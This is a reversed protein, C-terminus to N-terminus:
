RTGTGTDATDGTDEPSAQGNPCFATPDGTGLDYTVLIKSMPPPMQSRDFIIVGADEGNLTGLVYSYAGTECPIEM